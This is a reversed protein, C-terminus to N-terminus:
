FSTVYCCCAFEGPAAQAAAQLAAQAEAATSLTEALFVDVHPQLAAAIAAYEQQM